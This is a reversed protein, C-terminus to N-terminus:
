IKDDKVEFSIIRMKKIDERKYRSCGSTILELMTIREIYFYHAVGNMQIEIRMTPMLEWFHFPLPTFWQGTLRFHENHNFWELNDAIEAPTPDTLEPRNKDDM